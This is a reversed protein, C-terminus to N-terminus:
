LTIELAHALDDLTENEVEDDNGVTLKEIQSCVDGLEMSEIVERALTNMHTSYDVASLQSCGASWLDRDCLVVEPLKGQVSLVDKKLHSIKYDNCGGIRNVEQLCSQLTIFNKNLSSMKVDKWASETAVIEELTSSHKEVQLTQIARFFGLDLLPSTPMRPHFMPSRM